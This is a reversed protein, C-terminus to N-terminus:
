GGLREHIADFTADLDYEVVLDIQGTDDLATMLEDPIADVNVIIPWPKTPPVGGGPHFILYPM